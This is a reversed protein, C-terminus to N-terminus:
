TPPWTYSARGTRPDRYFPRGMSDTVTQWGCSAPDPYAAVGAAPSPMMPVPQGAMYAGPMAVPRPAYGGYPQQMPMPMPQPVMMAAPAPPQYPRPMGSTMVQTPVGHPMGMPPQQLYPSAGYPAPQMMMAGPRPAYAGVPSPAVPVVGAPPQAMPMMQQQQMVHQPQQLQQMAPHPQPQLAPQQMPVPQAQPQPRPASTVPVAPNVAQAAVDPTVAHPDVFTMSIPRGSRQIAGVADDLSSAWLPQGNVAVLGHGAKPGPAGQSTVVAEALSGPTVARVWISTLLTGSGADVFGGGTRTGDDYARAAASAQGQCLELQLGLPGPSTITVDYQRQAPLAWVTSKSVHNLFYPRGSGPDVQREWFWPLTVSSPTSPVPAPPAAPAPAYPQQSVVQKEPPPLAEYSSSSASSGYPAASLISAAPASASISLEDRTSPDGGLAAAAASYSSSSSSSAVPVAAAGGGEVTASPYTYQYEVASTSTLGVPEGSSAAAAPAPAPVPESSLSVSALQASLSDGSSADVVPVAPASSDVTVAVAAPAADVAPAVAVAAAAPMAPRGPPIAKGDLGLRLLPQATIEVACTPRSTIPLLDTLLRGNVISGDVHTGQPMHGYAPWNSWSVVGRVNGIVEGGSSGTSSSASSTLPLDFDLSGGSKFGSRELVPLLATGIAQSAASGGETLIKIAIASSLLTRLALRFPKSEVPALFEYTASAGDPSLGACPLPREAPLLPPLGEGELGVSLRLASSSSASAHSSPITVNLGSLSFRTPARCSVVADFTLEAVAPLEAGAASGIGNGTSGDGAVRSRLTLRQAIPGTAIDHLSARGNAIEKDISAPKKTFLSFHLDKNGFRGTPGSLKTGLEIPPSGQPLLRLPGLQCPVVDTAVAGAPETWFKGYLGTAGAAASPALLTIQASPAVKVEFESPDAM